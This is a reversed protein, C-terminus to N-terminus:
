YQIEERSVNNYSKLTTLSPALDQEFKPKESFNQTTGNKWKGFLKSDVCNINKPHIGVLDVV